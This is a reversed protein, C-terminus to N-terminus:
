RMSGCGKNELNEHKILTGKVESLEEYMSGRKECKFCTKQTVPQM